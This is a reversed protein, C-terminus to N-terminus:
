NACCVTTPGTPTVAGSPTSSGGSACAGGTTTVTAAIYPPSLTGGFFVCAGGSTIPASPSCTASSSWTVSSSCTVGTPSGCTCGNTCSRTDTGSMDLLHRNPYSSPCAVNGTQYICLSTGFQSAPACVETGTCGTTPPSTTPACVRAATGWDQTSDWTPVTKQVSSGCAGGSPQAAAVISGSQGGIGCGAAQCAGAQITTCPNTTNCMNSTYTEVMPGACGNAVAGCECQCVAPDANPSAFLSGFVDTAYPASCDLPTPANGSGPNQLDFAVPGTFGAPAAPTCASGSGCLPPPTDQGADKPESADTGTDHATGDQSVADPADGSPADRAPADPLTADNAAGDTADGSVVDNGPGVEMSMADRADAVTRDSPADTSRDVPADM